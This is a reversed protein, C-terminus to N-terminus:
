RKKREINKKQADVTGYERLFFSDSLRTWHCLSGLHVQVQIQPRQQLVQPMWTIEKRPTMNQQQIRM